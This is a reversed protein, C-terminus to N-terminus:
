ELQLLEQGEEVGDGSAVLIAAVKGKRPAYVHTNMKMAEITFLQDGEVVEQGPKVEVSVIKGSLPSPVGGASGSARPLASSASVPTPVPISSASPSVPPPSPMGATPGSEELIEVTVDYIKGEATIRLKKFQSM